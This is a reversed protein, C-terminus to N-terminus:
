SLQPDLFFPTFAVIARHFGFSCALDCGDPQGAKDKNSINIIMLKTILLYFVFM